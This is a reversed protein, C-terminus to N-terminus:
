NGGTEVHYYGSRARVEARGKKVKVELTHWGEERESSPSYTLLYRNKMEDLIDAFHKELKSPSEIQIFAGGSVDTISELFGVELAKDRPATKPTMAQGVAATGRVMGDLARASEEEDDAITSVAYIVANSEAIADSIQEETLWSYTDVGDTFLLIVPRELGEATKVGSYLGDILATGGQAEVRDLARIVSAHNSTLECRKEIDASFTVLAAEDQEELGRLFTSAAQKLYTLKDGDVSESTDFLLIASTSVVERPVIEVDQLVDNDYVEFDEGTLGRVARGNHHVFVDITVVNVSARFVPVDQGLVVTLPLAALIWTAACKM